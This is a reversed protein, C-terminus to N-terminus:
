PKLQENFAQMAERKEDEIDNIQITVSALNDKMENLQEPTFPKMYGKEEVADCNSDLFDIREVGQKIDKGLEKQM